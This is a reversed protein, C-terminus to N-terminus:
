VEIGLLRMDPRSRPKVKENYSEAMARDRAAVERLAVRLTDEARKMQNRMEQREYRSLSPVAVYRWAKDLWVKLARVDQDLTDAM